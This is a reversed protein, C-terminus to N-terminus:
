QTEQLPIRQDGRPPPAPLRCDGAPIEDIHALDYGHDFTGQDPV